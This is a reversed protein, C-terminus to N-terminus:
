RVRVTLIEYPGFSLAVGSDAIPLSGLEREMLDCLTAQSADAPLALTCSTAVGDTEFLRVVFGDGDEAPKVTSIEVNHRDMGLLSPAATAANGVAVVAPHNFALAHQEVRAAREDGQHPYLAYTFRQMGRDASTGPYNTSRLLALEMMNGLAKHGYKCDNLLAVGYDARSLDVWKHACIEFRTMDWTTNRHTPRKLNGFQIDCTVADTHVDVPFATRLM